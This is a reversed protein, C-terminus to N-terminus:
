EFCCPASSQDCAGEFYDEVDDWKCSRFDLSLDSFDEDKLLMEPVVRMEDFFIPAPAEPEFCDNLLFESEFAGFDDRESIGVPGWEIEAEGPSLVSTPSRLSHDCEGIVAVTPSTEWSTPKCDYDPTAPVAIEPPKIFNTFALHGKFAIAARDYALGAEEATDFTGLWVRTRSTPDRIEAAWRGWRRQRVGRFKRGKPSVKNSEDNARCRPAKPKSFLRPASCDEIRIENITRKVVIRDEAEDGSSDTADGDTVFIRVIKPAVVNSEPFHNVLKTTVNRHETYKTRNM